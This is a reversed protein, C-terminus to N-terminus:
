RELERLSFIRDPIRLDFRIKQIVIETYHGKKRENRMIWRTPINRGGMRRVDLFEMTRIKEGKEDYYEIRAPLYDTKRVWYLLKGWVVPADPKPILELKWTPTGQLTDNAVIRINYDRVANSERVLDDYTYDSGNWSQLMMSPPIRITTETNRLYMWIDKGIKLTRNGAERAPAIIKILAKENGVWWSEMKLTRVYDPTVVKMEFIGYSTKGKYANEARQVIEEPTQGLAAATLAILLLFSIMRNM